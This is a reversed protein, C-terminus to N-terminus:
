WTSCAGLANIQANVAGSLDCGPQFDIFNSSIINVNASSTTIYNGTPLYPHVNNGAFVFRGKKTIASNHTLNQLYNTSAIRVALEADVLGHGIEFNWTGQNIGGNTMTFPYTYGSLKQATNNIISGVQFQTLCPNASLLLAAIGAVHPCAASTGNFWQTYDLNSYNGNPSPPPNYGNNGQRDTTSIWTGPAMVDLGFGYNSSGARIGTNLLNGVNIIDSRYNGPYNIIASNDNGTAFLVVCGLGGRGTNLANDIAGELFSSYISQSVFWSCSIVEAGNSTAWLFGDGAEAASSTLVEFSISILDCNYAVGAIGINNNGEAAAIGACATGHSGWIATPTNGSEADYGNNELNNDLDPHNNEFGHDLIAIDVDSSGTTLNWAACVRSDVGAVGAYQGTNSLGWQNAFYTDNVCSTKILGRMDPEVHKFLHREHLLQSAQLPYMKADRNAGLMIWNKMFPNQGLVSYNIKNAEELLLQIDREDNLEVWLSNTVAFHETGKTSYHFSANIISSDKEITAVIQLLEEKSLHDNSLKIEAYHNKESLLYSPPNAHTKILRKHYIDPKFITVEGFDKIREKLKEKSDLHCLVYIFQTNLEFNIKENKYYYFEQATVKNTIGSIFFLIFLTFMIRHIPGKARLISAYLGCGPAKSQLPSTAFLRVWRPAGLYTHHLSSEKM